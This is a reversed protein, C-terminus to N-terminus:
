GAAVWKDVCFCFFTYSKTFVETFCGTIVVFLFREWLMDPHVVVAYCERHFFVLVVVVIKEELLKRRMVVCVRACSCVRVHVCM